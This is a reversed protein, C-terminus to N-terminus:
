PKGGEEVIFRKQASAGKLNTITLILIKPPIIGTGGGARSRALPDRASTNTTALASAPATFTIQDDDGALKGPHFPKQNIAFTKLGAPALKAGHVEFDVLGRNATAEVFTIALKAPAENGAGPAPPEVSGEAELAVVREELEWFADILGNFFDATILDGPRVPELSTILESSRAM